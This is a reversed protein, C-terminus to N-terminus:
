MSGPWESAPLIKNERHELGALFRTLVSRNQVYCTSQHLQYELESKTIHRTAKLWSSYLCPLKMNAQLNSRLYTGLPSTYAPHSVQVTFQENGQDVSYSSLKKKGGHLM